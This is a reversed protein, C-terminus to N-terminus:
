KLKVPIFIDEESLPDNNKYKDGLIEFHPRDDLWYDCNPLWDNFISQYYSDISTSSGVYHFVAYLGSSLVCAEMEDPLHAFDAVEIAAWRDFENSPKYHIFHDPKYVVLSILDNSLSNSIEKRRPMFSRWLEGMNDNAHSMTMRKGVLKKEIIIEIRPIM